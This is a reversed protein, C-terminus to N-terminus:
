VPRMWFLFYLLLGKPFNTYGDPNESENPRTVSMTGGPAPKAYVSLRPDNYDRLYNVLTQSLKWNGGDGFAYWIDGYSSANM